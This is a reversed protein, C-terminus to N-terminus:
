VKRRLAYELVEDMTKVPIFNFDDVIEKPIDEIDKLNDYPIIINYIKHRHAALSKEKLGGIALVRGRITIEGTMAVDQRVPIGTLASVLATAMTIGASPGDKPTAGEPVHIHIDNESYFEKNIGLKDAKSRIYCIAAKASEKMVDGLKGTLEINGKGALINAEVNLLTGGYSTYALGNVVGPEDIKTENQEIYRRVGLYDSVNKDSITVKELNSIKIEYISKRILTAIERELNRVGAEITYYDIIEKIASDLVNVTNKSVNHEKLQKPLLHKKAINFKELYTYSSLEIIELRDYLAPPISAASNATTIFMVKSLDFPIELYHDRFNHNQEKDLVELLASAPDGRFDAAMKDIEDLLIIPNKSGANKVANIIRGPMAGIYTKRHGRIDAEDRIGGLSLRAFKKGTASAVSSVVSTKGVGPPGILCLIMGNKEPAQERVAIYELIREKVKSLGYHEKDLMKKCKELNTKEKTEVNWPLEFITDLYTRVVTAEHSNDPMFQLRNIENKIKEETQKPVDIKKLKGLYRDIETDSNDSGTLENQIVRIQERLYYEKQNKDINEKVKNQINNKLKLLEIESALTHMLMDIRKSVSVTELLTQRKDLPIDLNSSVIDSFMEINDLSSNLMGFVDSNIHKTYTFYEDFLSVINRVKAEINKTLKKVGKIEVPVINGLIFPNRSLINNLKAVRIGKVLVRLNNDPLKLIQKIIAIVGVPYLDSFKPDDIDADKQATIFIIQENKMATNIANISIDRQVDLTISMEPFINLGRLALVPMDVNEFKM